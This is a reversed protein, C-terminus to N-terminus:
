GQSFNAIIYGVTELKDELREIRKRCEIFLASLELREEETPERNHLVQYLDDM